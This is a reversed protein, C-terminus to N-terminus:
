FCINAAASDLRTLEPSWLGLSQMSRKLDQYQKSTHLVTAATAAYAEEPQCQSLLGEVRAILKNKRLSTGNQNFLDLKECAEKVALQVAEGVKFRLLVARDHHNLNLATETTEGVSTKPRLQYLFFEFHQKPLDLFPNVIPEPVVDHTGKTTNCRKCSPLLNDWELVEDQYKEKYRFHDVEMYKSETSLECECYVCKKHSLALLAERIRNDNWVDTGSTKFLSTLRDKEETTLFAPPAKRNLKIM